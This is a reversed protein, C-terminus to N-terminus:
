LHRTFSKEFVINGHSFKILGTMIAGGFHNPELYCLISKEGIAVPGSRKELLM